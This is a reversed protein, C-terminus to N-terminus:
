NALAGSRAVGLLLSRLAAADCPAPRLGLSWGSDDLVGVSRRVVDYVGFVVPKALDSDLVTATMAANAATAVEILAERYTASSEVGEGYAETLTSAGLRVPGLISDVIGRLPADRAVQPYTDPSLFADVGATIAGCASHGLVVVVQITPLHGMAYHLSGVVDAGPVNGAVRTTFIQNGSAGLVLELPVRADACGLAAAFPEQPPVEGPVRPLGISDPGVSVEIAAGDAGLSVFAANGRHLADLAEAATSPSAPAEDEVIITARCLGAISVM